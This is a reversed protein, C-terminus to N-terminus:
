HPSVLRPCCLLPGRHGSLPAKGLKWWHNQGHYLQRMPSLHMSVETLVLHASAGGARVEAVSCCHAESQESATASSKGKLGAAGCFGNDKGKLRGFVLSLDKILGRGPESPSTISTNARVAM